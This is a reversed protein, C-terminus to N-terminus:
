CFTILAGIQCIKGKDRNVKAVASKQV